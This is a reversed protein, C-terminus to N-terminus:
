AAGRLYDAVHQRASEGLHVPYGDGDGPQGIWVTVVGDEAREFNISAGHSDTISLFDEPRQESPPTFRAATM